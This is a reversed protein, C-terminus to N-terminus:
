ETQESRHPARRLRDVSQEQVGDATRAACVHQMTHVARSDLIEDQKLMSRRALQHAILDVHTADRPQPEDLVREVTDVIAVTRADLEINVRDGAVRSGLNTLRLTEPILHLVFSGAPDTDAVTLSSGDVAIFGKNFIYKMWQCPVAIRLDCVNGEHVAELIEGTGVVHGSVDHGGIEDGVRSSREVAVRRGVVLADLTMLDLTERIADLRISDGSLEVVTQCVGDISISAGIELGAVLREDLAVGYRLLEPERVVESVEPRSM